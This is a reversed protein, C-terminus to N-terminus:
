ARLHRANGDHVHQSSTHPVASCGLMDEACKDLLCFSGSMFDGTNDAKCQRLCKHTTSLRMRDEQSTLVDWADAGCEMLPGSWCQIAKACSPKGLCQWVSSCLHTVQADSACHLLKKTEDDHFVKLVTSGCKEAICLLQAASGVTTNTPARTTDFLAAM